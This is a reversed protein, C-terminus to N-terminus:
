AVKGSVGGKELLEVRECRNGAINALTNADFVALFAQLAKGVLEKLRGAPTGQATCLGPVKSGSKVTSSIMRRHGTVMLPLTRLLISHM